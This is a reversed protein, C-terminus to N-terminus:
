ITKVFYDVTVSEMIRDAVNNGVVDDDCYTVVVQWMNSKRMYIIGQFRMFIGKEHFSGEVFVGMVDDSVVPSEKFELNSVDQKGALENMMGQYAGQLNLQVGEQFLVSNVVVNFNKSPHYSYSEADKIFKQYDSPIDPTSKDLKEPLMMSLGYKGVLHKEWKSKLVTDPTKASLFFDRIKESYFYGAGAILIFIFILPILVIKKNIKKQSFANSTVGNKQVCIENRFDQLSKGPNTKIWEPFNQHLRRSCQECFTVFETKLPNLHGCNECRIFYEASMFNTGVATNNM